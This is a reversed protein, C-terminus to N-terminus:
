IVRHFTTGALIMWIKRTRAILPAHIHMRGRGEDLGVCSAEPMIISLRLEVAYQDSKISQDDLNFLRVRDTRCCHSDFSVGDIVHWKSAM